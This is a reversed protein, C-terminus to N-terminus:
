YIVIRGPNGSGGDGFGGGPDGGRGASSGYRPDTTGAPTQGSGATTAGGTVLTGGYYGSGGGGGASYSPSSGSGGGYYGGGGGGTYNIGNGGTGLSGPNGPGAGGATQTGGFGSGPASYRQGALGGGAGGSYDYGGGGGGGAVIQTVAAVTIASRGGGGGHQTFANANGGGGSGGVGTGSGGGGVLVSISGGSPMSVTGSTFGGGGGYPYEGTDDFRGPSGGGGGAGWARVSASFTSSPVITWTGATSLTLPGHVDLDWTTRGGVAPSITFIRSTSPPPPIAVPTAILDGYVAKLGRETRNPDSANGSNYGTAYVTTGGGSGKLITVTGSSGSATPITLTTTRVNGDVVSTNPPSLLVIVQGGCTISAAPAAYSFANFQQDWYLACELITDSSYFALESQKATTALLIQKYAIDLLALGVSLLVSTLIIAVLLAFGRPNRKVNM